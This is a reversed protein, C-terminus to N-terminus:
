YVSYIKNRGDIGETGKYISIFTNDRIYMYTKDESPLLESKLKKMMQRLEYNIQQENETMDMSLYISTGKLRPKTMRLISDRIIDSDVAIIVKDITSKKIRSMINKVHSYKETIGYEMLFSDIVKKMSNKEDIVTLDLGSIVLNCCKVVRIKTERVASHILKADTMTKNTQRKTEVKVWPARPIRLINPVGLLTDTRPEEYEIDVNMEDNIIDVKKASLSLCQQEIEIIKNMSKAAEEKMVDYEIKLNSVQNEAAMLQNKMSNHKNILESNLKNMSTLEMELKSVRSVLANFKEFHKIFKEYFYKYHDNALLDCAAIDIDYISVDEYNDDNDETM